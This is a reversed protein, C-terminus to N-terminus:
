ETRSTEDKPDTDIGEVAAAASYDARLQALLRAQRDADMGVAHEVREIAAAIEQSGPHVQIEGMRVNPVEDLRIPRTPEHGRIGLHGLLVRRARPRGQEVAALFEGWTGDYATEIQEAEESTVDAADFQWTQLEGNKPKYEVRYSM